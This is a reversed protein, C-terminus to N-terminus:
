AKLQGSLQASDRGIEAKLEALFRQFQAYNADELDKVLQAHDAGNSPAATPEKPGTSLTFDKQALRDAISM